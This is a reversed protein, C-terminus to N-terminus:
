QNEPYVGQMIKYLSFPCFLYKGRRMDKPNNSQMRQAVQWFYVEPDKAAPITIVDVPEQIVPGKKIEKKVVSFPESGLSRWRRGKRSLQVQRCKLTSDLAGRHMQGQKLGTGSAIKDILEAKTM